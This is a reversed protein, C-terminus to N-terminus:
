SQTVYEVTGTFPNDFVYLDGQRDAYHIVGNSDVFNVIVKGSSDYSTINEVDDIIANATGDGGNGFNDDVASVIFKWSGNTTVYLESNNRIIEDSNEREVILAAEKTPLANAYLKNNRDSDYQSVYIISPEKILLWKNKINVTQIEVRQKKEFLETAEENNSLHDNVYDSLTIVNSFDIAM